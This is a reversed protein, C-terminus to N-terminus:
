RDGREYRARFDAMRKALDRDFAKRREHEEQIQWAVVFIVVFVVVLGFIELGSM